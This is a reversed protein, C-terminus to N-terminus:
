WLIPPNIQISLAKIAIEESTLNICAKFIEIREHEPMGLIFLRDAYKSITVLQHPTLELCLKIISQRAACSRYTLCFEKEYRGLMFIKKLDTSNRILIHNLDNFIIKPPQSFNLFAQFFSWIKNQKEIEKSNILSVHPTLDYLSEWFQQIYEIFSQAQYTTPSAKSAIIKLNELKKTFISSLLSKDKTLAFFNKDTKGITALDSVQIFSLIKLKIEDPLKQMSAQMSPSSSIEQNEEFSLTYTSFINFLIFILINKKNIMIEEKVKQVTIFYYV